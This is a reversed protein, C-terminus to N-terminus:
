NTIEKAFTQTASAGGFFSTPCAIIYDGIGEIAAGSALYFVVGSVVARCFENILTKGQGKSEDAISQTNNTNENNIVNSRNNIYFCAFVGISLFRLFMHCRSTFHSANRNERTTDRMNYISKMLAPACITSFQVLKVRLEKTIM